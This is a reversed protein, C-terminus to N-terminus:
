RFVYRLGFNPFIPMQHLQYVPNIQADAIKTDPLWVYSLYNARNLINNVGMYLELHLGRMVFDKNLQADLRAFYPARRANMKSLDYIPRNQASSDAIDFPTYPRGTAYGFRSSVEFGRGLRQLVAMNVIWPLDFNSPRRIGDLGAFKARSYAISGRMVLRSGIRTVDSFEIGSAKGQGGSNMPLWVIQQVEQGITDAVDHLNIAPYETSAPIDRYVKNYAEIHIQSAPGLSLDLGAIGHTARMPLMARNQPYALLYVYPPMQAYSAYALHFSLHESPDFRLSVRPTLTSHHGLAFTQLRGGASLSIKSFPSVTFQAFSGSQGTSFNSVFSTSDTRTPAASYPSLSGFPQEIQYHPRQLWFASGASIASHTGSWEFRYGANSFAENSDQSYVPVPPIAAKAGPCGRQLYTPPHTPDPLQDQQHIHEIEESDSISAIGFSHRSYVQQWEVGTTERWGSYQSDITTASYRDMPCPNMEVSDRGGLHLVTLRDGSSTTRRFRILENEYSPLGGIGASEMFQLLGKHASILLDGGHLQKEFLGGMGEIGVDSEVHTSLNKPDLTEIDIVSSLREPYRADYGGTYFKIGQIVASDIMPGFGGTMGPTAIHNINPIEIGDVLFLNEMPHGGRVLVENSLDNTSVVGPLVRLFRELDGFSGATSLIEQGGARFPEAVELDREVAHVEVLTVPATLSTELADFMSEPRNSGRASASPAPPHVWPSEPIGTWVPAAKDRSASSAKAAQSAEPREPGGPKQGNLFALYSFIILVSLSYINRTLRM